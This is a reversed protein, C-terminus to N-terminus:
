GQQGTQHPGQTLVGGFSLGTADLPGGQSCRKSVAQKQARGNRKSSIARLGIGDFLRPYSWVLTGFSPFAGAFIRSSRALPLLRIITIHRHEM